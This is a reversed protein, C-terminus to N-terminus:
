FFFFFFVNFFPRKLKQFASQNVCMLYTYKEKEKKLNFM